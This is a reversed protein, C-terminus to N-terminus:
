DIKLEEGSWETAGVRRIHDKVQETTLVDAVGDLGVIKYWCTHDDDVSYHTGDNLYIESPLGDYLISGDSKTTRRMESM